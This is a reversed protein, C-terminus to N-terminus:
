SALGEDQRHGLCSCHFTTGPWPGGEFPWGVTLAGELGPERFFEWGFTQRFIEPPLSTFGEIDTRQSAHCALATRKVDLLDQVDVAWRVEDEPTGLPNGDDGPVRADPLHMPGVEPTVADIVRNLHDRNMTVELVRPPRAALEVARWGVQHVKIHDPHGYNGHWDYGVLADADEEDLVDALSRGARDLDADLFSGSLHNQPWGTMGSDRYGLGVVRHVGIVSAARRLEAARREAVSEGPRLDDPAEGCEGGTATVLVVRHGRRAAMAMTGATSSSEDDPHAHFFVITAMPAM